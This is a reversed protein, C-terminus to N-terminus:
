ASVKKGRETLWWTEPDGPTHEVLGFDKLTFLTSFAAGIEVRNHKLDAGRMQMATLVRRQPKSLQLPKQMNRNTM